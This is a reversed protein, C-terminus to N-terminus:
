LVQVQRSFYSCNESTSNVWKVDDKSLIFLLLYLFFLPSSTPFHSAAKCMGFFSLLIRNYNLLWLKGLWRLVRIYRPSSQHRNEVWFNLDEFFERACSCNILPQNTVSSTTPLKWSKRMAVYGAITGSEQWLGLRATGMWNTAIRLDNAM